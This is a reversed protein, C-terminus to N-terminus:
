KLDKIKLYARFVAEEETAATVKDFCTPDTVHEIIAAYSNLSYKGSYIHFQYKDFAKEKCKKVLKDLSICTYKCDLNCTSTYFCVISVKLTNLDVSVLNKTLGNCQYIDSLIKLILDDM